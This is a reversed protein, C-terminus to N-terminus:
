CVNLAKVIHTGLSAGQCVDRGWSTLGARIPRDVYMKDNGAREFASVTPPGEFKITRSFCADSKKVESVTVEGMSGRREGM